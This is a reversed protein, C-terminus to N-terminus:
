MQVRLLKNFRELEQLLVVQTPKLQEGFQKRINFEDYEEPIKQELDDILGNLYDERNIGGEGGGENTQMLICNVWIDKTSSTFYGIEANAHLGFVEPSNKRPIESMTNLYNEIPGHEPIVYDFGGSTSFFFPQNTDFLFDGMYEDLYCNLVRRDFDVLSM